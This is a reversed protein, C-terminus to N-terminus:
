QELLDGDTSHAPSICMSGPDSAEQAQAVTCAVRRGKPMERKQKQFSGAIEVRLGEM